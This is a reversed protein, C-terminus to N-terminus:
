HSAAPAPAPPPLPDEDEIRIRLAGDQRVLLATYSFTRPAEGARTWVFQGVVAVADPGLPEYSLDRWEFAAPPQWDAGAYVAATESLTMFRKRGGGMLWSGRRDYRAAIAARDGALLDRAYAAMFAEAERAVPFEAVAAAPQAAEAPAAGFAAAATLAAMALLISRRM